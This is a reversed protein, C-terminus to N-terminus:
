EDDKVEHVLVPVNNGGTGMRACLSPATGGYTRFDGNRQADILYPADPVEYIASEDVIEYAVAQAGTTDLTYSPDGEAGIGLGNQSKEIERGDQIPIVYAVGHLSVTDLTFMPDGVQGYGPGQPGATDSRGIITGQIPVIDEAGSQVVYNTNKMGSSSMLSGAYGPMIRVEDRQNQQFIFSVDSVDVEQTVLINHLAVTPSPGHQSYVRMAQGM